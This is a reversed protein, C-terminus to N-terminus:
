PKTRPTKMTTRNCGTPDHVDDDDHVLVKEHNRLPMMTTTVLHAPMLMMVASKSCFSCSCSAFLMMMAFSLVHLRTLAIHCSAVPPQFLLSVSWGGDDAWGGDRVDTSSMAYSARLLMGRTLVSRVYAMASSHGPKCVAPDQHLPVPLGPDGSMPAYCVDTGSMAYSARLVMAPLNTGHFRRCAASALRPPAAYAIDIGPVAYCFSLLIGYPM